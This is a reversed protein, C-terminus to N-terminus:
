HKKKQKEILQEIRKETLLLTKGFFYYDWLLTNVESQDNIGDLKERYIKNSYVEKPVTFKNGWANKYSKKKKSSILIELSSRKSGFEAMKDIKEQIIKNQLTKEAEIKEITNRLYVFDAHGDQRGYESYFMAKVAPNGQVDFQTEWDVFYPFKPKLHLECFWKKCIDCHYVAKKSSDGDKTSCEYCIGLEPAETKAM